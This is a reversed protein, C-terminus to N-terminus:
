FAFRLYVWHDVPGWELILHQQLLKRLSVSYVSIGNWFCVRRRWAARMHKRPGDLNQKQLLHKLVKRSQDFRQLWGRVCLHCFRRGRLPFDLCDSSLEKLKGRISLRWSVQSREKWGLLKSPVDVKRHLSMEAEGESVAERNEPIKFDGNLRMTKGWHMESSGEWQYETM